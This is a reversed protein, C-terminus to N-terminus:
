YRMTEMVADLIRLHDPVYFKEYALQRPSLFSDSFPRLTFFIFFHPILSLSLFFLSLEFTSWLTHGLRHSAKRAGAFPPLM